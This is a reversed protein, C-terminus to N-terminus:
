KSRRLIYSPLGTGSQGTSHEYRIAAASPNFPINLRNRIDRELFDRLSVLENATLYDTYVYSRYGGEPDGKYYDAVENYDVAYCYLRDGTAPYTYIWTDPETPHPVAHDYYPTGPYTTIITVDFDDPRTELLWDHTQMVTEKTEGPHGISMLAKVKLGHRKAIEICRCNEERTSKKNINELIRPSGSEFGTLIWRFGARHMAKAQDDTFLQAKIFGRFRFNTKLDHQLREIANMLEIMKPSVNLEDDYFMFGTVGYNTYIETMERIISETSRIRVRRLSPSERGGCFGCAFPCGLQAILSLARVGEITYHYSEVDVLHRAPFPMRNLTENAQFLSSKPDDADIVQPSGESIAILVADEGDGAVLVDFMDTLQAFTQTARGSTGLTRERRFATHVLTVHPGGLIIKSKPQAARIANYIKVTAPMQPTTASIGFIKAQSSRAHDGMALEDNDIGSLDVVEVTYGQQELVAAVKLIGLAMFVREDLLFPSPPIVLCIPGAKSTPM